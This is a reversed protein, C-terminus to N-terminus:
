RSVERFSDSIKTLVDRNKRYNPTQTWGVIQHFADPGEVITHLYVLPLGDQSTGRIEYRLAQLGGIQSWWPGFETGDRLSNKLGTRVYQSYSDLTQCSSVSKSESLVLLFADAKEDGVKLTAEPHLSEVPKWGQPAEIQIKGQVGTFIGGPPVRAPCATLFVALIILGLGAISFKVNKM